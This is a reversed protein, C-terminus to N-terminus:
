SQKKLLHLVVEKGPGKIKLNNKLYINFKIIKNEDDVSLEQFSGIEFDPIPIFNFLKELYYPSAPNHFSINNIINQNEFFDKGAPTLDYTPLVKDYASAFKKVDNETAKLFGKISFSMIPEKDENDESILQPTPLYTITNEKNRLYITYTSQGFKDEITTVDLHIAFGKALLEEDTPLQDKFVKRFTTLDYISSAFIDGNGTWDTKETITKYFNDVFKQDVSSSCSLMVTMPSITLIIGSSFLAIRKLNM